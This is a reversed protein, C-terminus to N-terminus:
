YILKYTIEITKTIKTIIYSSFSEEDYKSVDINIDFVNPNVNDLDTESINNLNNLHNQYTNPYTKKLRNLQEEKSINLRIIFFEKKIHNLENQFRLDDIIVFNHRNEKIGNLTDKIWINKNILRMNYGITTLLDRNKITMGFLERAIKYVGSAFSYKTFQINKEKEFYEIIKKTLTSKGSWMKGSIAIKVM